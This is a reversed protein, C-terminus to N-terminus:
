QNGGPTGPIVTPANFPIAPQVPPCTKEARGLAERLAPTAMPDCTVLTVAFAAVAAFTVIDALAKRDTTM